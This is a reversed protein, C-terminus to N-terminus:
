GSKHKSNEQDNNCRYWGLQHLSITLLANHAEQSNGGMSDEQSNTLKSFSPCTCPSKLQFNPKLDQNLMTGLFKQDKTKPDRESEEFIRSSSYERLELLFIM